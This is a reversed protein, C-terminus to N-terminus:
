LQAPDLCYQPTLTPSAANFDSLNDDTDTSHGAGGAPKREISQNAGLASLVTGEYNLAPVAGWGVKDIVLLDTTSSLSIYVAGDGTIGASYTMNRKTWWSESSAGTSVIFYFGHAPITTDNATCSAGGRTAGDIVTLGKNTDAGSSNRTHLRLNLGTSGIDIALGTPNYLEIFESSAGGANQAVESILLGAKPVFKVSSTANTGSTNTVRVNWGTVGNTRVGAPVTATIQTASDVTVGTLATNVAANAGNLDDLSVATAGTFNTGTITLTTTGTNFPTTGNNPNTSAVVVNTVTPTLAPNITTFSVGTVLPALNLSANKFNNLTVTVTENTQFASAPTVTCVTDGVTWVCPQNAQTGSSTGILTLTGTGNNMAENFTLVVNANTLVGAAGNAPTSTFTPTGNITGPTTPKLQFDSGNMDTDTGNPIRSIAGDDGTTPAYSSNEASGSGAITVWDVITADTSATTAKNSGSLIVCYGVAINGLTAADINSLSHGSNALTFYGGAPITGSLALNETVGNSLDCASDRQLYLKAAALDIAQTNPNFIEVFDNSASSVGIENIVPVLPFWLATSTYTVGDFIYTATITDGSAVKIQNGVSAGTTFNLLTGTEFLGTNVGTETLTLSIGTSDSTSTVTVAVSEAVSTNTNASPSLVTIKGRGNVKTNDTTFFVSREFAISPLYISKAAGPTAFTQMRYNDAVYINQSPEFVNTQWDTNATGSAFNIREMSRKIYTPSGVNSGRNWGATNFKTSGDGVTDLVVSGFDTIGYVAASTKGNGLKCEYSDDTIGVKTDFHNAVAGFAGSDKKAVVFYGYPGIMAGPPLTIASNATSGDKTCAFKWGSMNIPSATTNYFEIFEDASDSTLDNSYSGMWMLESVVVAGAASTDGTSTVITSAAGISDLYAGMADAIRRGKLVILVSDDASNGEKRLAGTYIYTKAGITGRDVVFINAGVVTTGTYIHPNTLTYAQSGTAYLAQSSFYKKIPLLKTNELGQLTTPIDRDAKTASNNTTLFSTSYFDVSHNAESLETGLVDLPSEQPGWYVGIVQDLATFKTTFDTKAKGNGFLLQGFMNAERLFDRALGFQPSGIKLAVNPMKRMQNDDPAATSIYIFREDAMCFNHRVFANTNANGYLLQSENGASPSTLVTFRTNAQLAISGPDTEKINRDFAIKVQVGASAREILADTVDTLTLKSFACHLTARSSKIVDLLAAKAGSDTQATFDTTYLNFEEFSNETDGFPNTRCSFLTMVLAFIIISYIQRM